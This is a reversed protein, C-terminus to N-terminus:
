RLVKKEIWIPDVTSAELEQTALTELDRLLPSLAERSWDRLPPASVEALLAACRQHVQLHTLREKPHFALMEFILSLVREGWPSSMEGVKAAVMKRAVQLRQEHVLRKSSTKGLRKRSLMEFFVVGLSYVDASPHSAGVLREPAMYGLSGFHMSATSYELGELKARAIGFDLIRSAGSPTVMINSPKVDRHLLQIATDGEGKTHYAVHLAGAIEGVIHLAVWPPIPRKRIIETVPIGPIYEMILCWDDNLLALHEVKVVARHNVQRLVQAENWLRRFVDRHQVPDLNPVKIAFAETGNPLLRAKYVTGFGGSGLIGQIRYRRSSSM